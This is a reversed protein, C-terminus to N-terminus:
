APRGPHAAPSTVEDAPRPPIRRAYHRAVRARNGCGASCWQRRPHDKVFHLVCGPAPCARIAGRRPETVLTMTSRAIDALLAEVPSSPSLLAVAPPQTDSLAEWRPGAASLRNLVRRQGATPARGAVAADLVAGVTDRLERIRQADPASLRSRGGAVTATLDGSHLDVWRQVDAVTALGDRVEGRVAYVTNALEIALPEGLLPVEDASGPATTM